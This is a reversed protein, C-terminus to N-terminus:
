AYVGQLGFSQIMAPMGPFNQWGHIPQWIFDPDINTGYQDNCEQLGELFRETNGASYPDKYNFDHVKSPYGWWRRVAAFNPIGSNKDWVADCAQWVSFTATVFAWRPNLLSNPYARMYELGNASKFATKPRVGFLGRAANNPNTKYEPNIAAPNFRSEIYGVVTFYDALYNMSGYTSSYWNSMARIENLWYVRDEDGKVAWNSRHVSSSRSKKGGFVLLGGFALAALTVPDM